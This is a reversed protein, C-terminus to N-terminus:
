LKAHQFQHLDAILQPGNPHWGLREQTKASSASMDKGAFAMLWGFHEAAKDPSISVVPVGLSEGVAEAIQRFAIGEEATAHYRAGPERKELALRFLRVTDSVHTASWRNLGEGIYASVGKKHALEIVDSVLGQKKTNHIQSLRVVSVNVGRNLLEQGALESAVRPNPNGPNFYDEIAPQGPVATGMTTSSTIILPRSSGELASGLAAIARGDKQCNAAFNAFNHDFATHIVGDCGTAGKRLSDLDEIDGRHAEAGAAVVARAAAETRALGLVHHGATLLEAVIKSGIFGTSGTQFIRM